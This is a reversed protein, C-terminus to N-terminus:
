SNLQNEVIEEIFNRAKLVKDDAHIKNKEIQNFLEGLSEVECHTKIPDNASEGRLDIVKQLNPGTKGHLDGAPIPACIVLSGSQEAALEAISKINIFNYELLESQAKEPNRCFVNISGPFKALWPLIDKVLLGAGIFNIESSGRTKKRVLSGYSSSGVGILHQHRVRKVSIRIQELTSSLWSGWDCQSYDAETIFKRYQGFVETEAVMPSHLGSAIEMLFQVAESGNYVDATELLHEDKKLHEETGLVIHRLCTKWHLWDSSIEPLDGKKHVVVFRHVM